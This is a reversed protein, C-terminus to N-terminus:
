PRLDLLVGPMNIRFEDLLEDAEAILLDSKKKKEETSDTNTYRKNPSSFFKGSIQEEAISNSHEIIDSSVITQDFLVRMRALESYLLFAKEKALNM